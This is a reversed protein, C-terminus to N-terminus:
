LKNTQTINIFSCFLICDNNEEIIFSNSYYFCHRRHELAFSFHQNSENHKFHEIYSHYIDTEFSLLTLQNQHASRSVSLIWSKQFLICDNNEEVHEIIFSNSYYFCHRRHELSVSINIAKMTNLTNSIHITYTPWSVSFHWNIKSHQDRFQSSELSKSSNSIHFTILMSKFPLPVESFSRYIRTKSIYLEIYGLKNLM